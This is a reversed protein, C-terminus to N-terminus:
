SGSAPTSKRFEGADYRTWFEQASLAPKEGEFSIDIERLSPMSRIADIGHTIRDPSFILRSLRLEALPTLDTVASGALNLRELSKLSRLPSLDTVPTGQIDLSVLSTGALPALDTVATERLWLTGIQATQLDDLQKIKAQCLNLEELRKGALPSLDTVPCQNLWLKRVPVKKLPSLDEVVGGELYLESLKAASALPTLDRVQTRSADVFELTTFNLPSIEAIPCGAFAIKQLSMGQLPALDTVKTESLDIVKLPQGRLPELSTVGSQVLGATVFGGGSREFHANDNAQLRKRMEDASVFPLSSSSSAVVPLQVDEDPSAASETPPRSCGACATAIAFLLLTSRM